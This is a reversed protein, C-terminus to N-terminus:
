VKYESISKTDQKLTEDTDNQVNSNKNLLAAFFIFRNLFRDRNEKKNYFEEGVKYVIEKTLNPYLKALNRALRLLIFPYRPKKSIYAFAPTEAIDYISEKHPNVYFSNAGKSILAIATEMRSELNETYGFTMCLPTFGGENVVNSDAGNELLLQVHKYKGRAAALHLPTNGQGNKNSLDAGAFIERKLFDLTGFAATTHTYSEQLSQTSHPDIANPDYGLLWYQTKYYIKQIFSSIFEFM